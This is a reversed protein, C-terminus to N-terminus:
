FVVEVAAEPEARDGGGPNQAIFQYNLAAAFCLWAAYPAMLFAAIPRVRYFAWLVPLITIVSLGLM